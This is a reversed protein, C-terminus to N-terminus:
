YEIKCLAGLNKIDEGGQNSPSDVYAIKIEINHFLEDFVGYDDVNIIIGNKGDIKMEKKLKKDIYIIKLNVM